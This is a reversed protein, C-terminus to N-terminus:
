APVVDSFYMGLDAAVVRQDWADLIQFWDSSARDDRGRRVVGGQENGAGGHLGRWAFLGIATPSDITPNREIYGMWMGNEPVIFRIDDTAGEDAANYVARPTIVRGDTGLGFLSALIDDDAIGRQTYKIRDTIDANLRLSRRVKTGLILTNPTFGTAKGMRDRFDDVVGIPNAGSQNFQLFQGDSPASSVGTPNFTWVGARFFKQTWVRDRKIKSKTTLLRTANLDLNIQNDVNARQRDDVFHELAYEEAAYSGQGVKYGVQVPRGGLPRLQMEDRLFHGQEYVVYKGSALQVPILSSAAGTVYEQADNILSASYGTLFTDVHLAGQINAANSM